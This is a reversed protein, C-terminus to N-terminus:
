WSSGAGAWTLSRRSVAAIASAPATTRPAYAGVLANAAVFVLPPLGGDV